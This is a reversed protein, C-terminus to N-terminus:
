GIAKPFTRNVRPQLLRRESNAGVHHFLIERIRLLLNCLKIKVAAACDECPEAVYGFYVVAYLMFTAFALAGCVLM